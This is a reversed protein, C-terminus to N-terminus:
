DNWRKDEKPPAPMPMWHTVSKVRTGYVRWWGGVDLQGAEVIPVGRKGPRCVIVSVFAKPLGDAVRIWEM